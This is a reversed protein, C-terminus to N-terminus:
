VIWSIVTTRRFVHLNIFINNLIFFPLLESWWEEARQKALQAATRAPTMQSSALLATQWNLRPKNGEAGKSIVRVRIISKMLVLQDNRDGKMWASHSVWIQNPYVARRPPFCRPHFLGPTWGPLFLLHVTPRQHRALQQLFSHLALPLFYTPPLNCGVACGSCSCHAHHSYGRSTWGM